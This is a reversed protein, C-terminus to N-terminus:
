SEAPKPTSTGGPVYTAGRDDEVYDVDSTIDANSITVQNSPASRYGTGLNTEAYVTFRYKDGGILGDTIVTQHEDAPVIKTGTTNGEVVWRKIPAGVPDDGPTWSVIVERRNATATATVGTPQGPPTYDVPGTGGGIGTTDRTTNAYGSPLTLPNNDDPVDTRRQDTLTTDRNTAPIDNAPPRYTGTSPSGPPGAQLTDVTGTFSTDVVAGSATRGETGSTSVPRVTSYSNPGDLKADTGAAGANATDKTGTPSATQATNLTDPNVYARGPGGSFDSGGNVTTDPPTAPPNPDQVTTMAIEQVTFAARLYTDTAPDLPLLPFSLPQPQNYNFAYKVVRYTGAPIETSPQRIHNLLVVLGDGFYFVSIYHPVSFSNAYIDESLPDPGGIFAIQMDDNFVLNDTISGGPWEVLGFDAVYYYSWDTGDPGETVDLVPYDTM